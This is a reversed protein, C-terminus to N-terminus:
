YGPLNLQRESLREGERATAAELAGIQADLDKGGAELERASAEMAAKKANLEQVHTVFSLAAESM